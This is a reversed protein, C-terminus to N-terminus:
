VSRLENNEIVRRCKYGKYERGEKKKVYHMMPLNLNNEKCFKALNYVVSQTGDPKNIIWYKSTDLPKKQDLCMKEWEEKTMNSKRCSIGKSKKNKGYAGERLSCPQLGNEKAFKEVSKVFFETGDPMMIIWGLKWGGGTRRKEAVSREWDSKTQGIHRFRFGKHQSHKGSLVKNVLPQCLNNDRCFKKMNYIIHESGDPFTAIYHKVNNNLETVLRKHNYGISKNYPKKTDIWYQERELRIDADCEELIEFKFSDAGYKNWANQLYKNHHKQKRLDYRHLTVRDSICLSSGIYIKNTPICTIQYIGSTKSIISM